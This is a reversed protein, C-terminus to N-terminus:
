HARIETALVLESSILWLQAAVAHDYSREASKKAKCNAFYRGSVPELEPAAALHISTAAGQAPSKM